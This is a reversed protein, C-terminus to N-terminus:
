TSPPPLPQAAARRAARRRAKRRRAVMVFAIFVAALVCWVVLLAFAVKAVLDWASSSGRASTATVALPLSTGDIPVSWTITGGEVTGNTSSVTGPFRGRVTVTVADAPRLGAEAIDDAYPTAGVAALLEPDAFAVLGGDVRLTGDFAVTVADDTVTHTLTVNHLPGSSGNISRLLTTAEEPTSFDHAIVVRLGGGEVATPGAVTWGAGEADDFRLDDALGPAAAVVEADATVTLTITGTGDGRVEVDVVADVQCASLVSLTLLGASALAVARRM